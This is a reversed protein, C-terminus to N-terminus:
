KLDKCNYNLKLKVLMSTMREKSYCNQNLIFKTIIKDDEVTEYIHKIKNKKISSIFFNKYVDYYKNGALPFSVSPHHWQNPSNDYIDLIPSIFQYETILMKNNKDKKYFNMIEVINKAEREPSDPNLFTIWKLGKLKKDIIEADISKSIDIGGLENFKREENFRLHYKSVSFFCILISFILIYNRSFIKNYFSHVIGCLFPILFFIFNQNLSIMQHFVLSITLSISIILIFFDNLTLLNKIKLFLLIFILFFTFYSIFKFKIVENLISFRYDSLRDEGISSGFLIYQQYFNNINIETFFFFLFLFSLAILSGILSKTFITKGKKKDFYVFFLIIVSIIIIGYAAPTQKSFFSFLLLIPILIFYNDNKSKIYFILCYFAILMFFTSHHDVFPTGVVPYFLVSALFSYIFSFLKSLGLKKLVFYSLIAFISNFLSSHFIFTNWSIGFIKFFFGNFYDLIPGTVLWYDTFPKYGKIVRYGGNFLVTNDMPMIGIFGYYYNITFSLLGLFLILVKNNYVLTLKKQLM